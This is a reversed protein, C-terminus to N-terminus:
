VCEARRPHPAFLCPMSVAISKESEYVAIGGQIFEIM